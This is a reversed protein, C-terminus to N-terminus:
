SNGSQLFIMSGRFSVHFRCFFVEESSSVHKCHVLQAISKPPTYSKHASAFRTNAYTFIYVTLITAICLYIYIDIYDLGAPTTEAM